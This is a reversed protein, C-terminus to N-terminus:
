NQKCAEMQLSQHDNGQEVARPSARTEDDMRTQLRQGTMTDKTASVVTRKQALQELHACKLQLIPASQRRPTTSEKEGAEEVEKVMLRRLRRHNIM